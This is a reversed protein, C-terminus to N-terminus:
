WTYNFFSRVANLHQRYGADLSRWGYRSADSWPYSGHVVTVAGPRHTGWWNGVAPTISGHVTDLLLVRNAWIAPHQPDQATAALVHSVPYGGSSHGSVTFESAKRPDLGAAVLADRTTTAENSVNGWARYGLQQGVPYRGNAAAFVSTQPMVFVANPDRGFRERMADVVTSKDYYRENGPDIDGHYHTQVSYTLNPNQALRQTLGGDMFTLVPAGGNGDPRSISLRVGSSLLAEYNEKVYQQQAPSLQALARSNEDTVSVTPRDIPTAGQLGQPAVPPAVPPSPRTPQAEVPPQAQPPRVAPSQPSLGSLAPRVPSPVASPPQATPHALNPPTTIPAVPPVANAPPLTRTASARPGNPNRAAAIRMANLTQSGAVGDAELGNDRQFQTVAARTFRGFRGDVGSGDPGFKGLNYGRSRLFQQMGKVDNAAAQQSGM